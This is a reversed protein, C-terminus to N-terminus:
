RVRLAFRNSVRDGFSIQSGFPYSNPDFASLVDDWVLRYTGDLDARNFRPAINSGPPAGWLRLTDAFTANPQIVIPASICGNIAPGWVSHWTVGDRRELHLAFGGNCNVIYVPSGTRNTFVYPIDVGFGPGDPRLEYALAETQIPRSDDRALGTSSECAPLTLALIVIISISHSRRSEIRPMVIM